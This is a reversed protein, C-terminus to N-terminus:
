TLVCVSLSSSMSTDSAFGLSLVCETPYTDICLTTPMLFLEVHIWTCRDLPVLDRWPLDMHLSSLSSAVETMGTKSAGCRLGSHCTTPHHRPAWHSWLCLRPLNDTQSESGCEDTLFFFFLILSLQVFEWDKCLGLQNRTDWSVWTVVAAWGAPLVWATFFKPPQCNVSSPIRHCNSTGRSKKPSISTICITRM